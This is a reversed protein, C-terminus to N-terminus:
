SEAVDSEQSFLPTETLSPCQQRLRDMQRLENLKVVDLGGAPPRSVPVAQEGTVALVPPMCGVERNIFEIVRYCGTYRTIVIIESIKFFESKHPNLCARVHAAVSADSKGQKVLGAAILIDAVQNSALGGCMDTLAAYWARLTHDNM